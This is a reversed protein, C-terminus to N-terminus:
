AHEPKKELLILKAAEDSIIVFILVSNRSKLNNIVAAVVYFSSLIKESFASWNCSEHKQGDVAVAATQQIARLKHCVRVYM